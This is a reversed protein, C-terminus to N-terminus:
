DRQKKEKETHACHSQRQEAVAPVGFVLNFECLEVLSGGVATTGPIKKNPFSLNIPQDKYQM